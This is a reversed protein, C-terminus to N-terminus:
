KWGVTDMIEIANSQLSGILELSTTDKKFSGWDRLVKAAQVKENVPYEMNTKAFIEQAEVGSLFEMLKIANERNKSYKIVGGGRINVHVGQEDNPFVIAMKEKVTENRMAPNGGVMMGYYYSNAVAVKGLGAAVAKIQDRDGGKPKRAMNKVISEAWQTAKRKGHHHIIYSLLSQNYVNGSSRILVGNEYDNRAIDLYSIGEQPVQDKRFFLVRARMTLGFWKGEPGRLYGPINETLEQSDISQLLDKKKALYINGIDTTLLVDAPTYKGEREIRTVLGKAKGTIIRVKIGTKQSFIDLAPRILHEKQASYLNVVEGAALHSLACLVTIFILLQRKLFNM